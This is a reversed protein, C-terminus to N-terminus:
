LRPSSKRACDPFGSDSAYRVKRSASIPIRRAPIKMMFIEYRKGKAEMGTNTPSLLNKAASLARPNYGAHIYPSECVNRSNTKKVNTDVTSAAM